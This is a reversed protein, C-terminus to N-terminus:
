KMVIMKKTDIFNDAKLRIFYIGSSINQANFNTEFAGASLRQNILTAVERGSIDYIRMEVFGDKPINFSIKTSPNFPNPYNQNLKYDNVIQNLNRIGTLSANITGTMGFAAHFTCNYDYTGAIMIVYTFSTQTSNIPADWTSAGSPVNTSTTTHTGSM